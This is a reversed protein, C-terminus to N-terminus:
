GHPSPRGGGDPKEASRLAGFADQRHHDREMQEHEQGRGAQPKVQDGGRWPRVLKPGVRMGVRRGVCLRGRSRAMCSPLQAAAAAAIAAVAAAAVAAVAAAAIIVAAAPAAVPRVAQLRGRQERDKPGEGDAGRDHAQERRQAHRVRDDEQRAPHKQTTQQQNAFHLLLPARQAVLCARPEHAERRQARPRVDVGV